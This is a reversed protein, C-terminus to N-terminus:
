IYDQQGRFVHSHRRKWDDNRMKGAQLSADIIYIGNSFTYSVIGDNNYTKVLYKFNNKMLVEFATVSISDCGKTINNNFKLIM